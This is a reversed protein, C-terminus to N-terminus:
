IWYPAGPVAGSDSSTLGSGGTRGTLWGLLDAQPGSVTAGGSGLEHTLGTDTAEIRLPPVGSRRRQAAVLDDIIWRAAEPPVDDFTYGAALDAHHM